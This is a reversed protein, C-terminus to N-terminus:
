KTNFVEFYANGEINSTIISSDIIFKWIEKESISNDDITHMSMFNESTVIRTVEKPELTTIFKRANHPFFLYLNWYELIKHYFMSVICTYKKNNIEYIKVSKIVLVMENTSIEYLSDKISINIFSTKLFIMLEFQKNTYKKFKEPFESKKEKIKKYELQAKWDM